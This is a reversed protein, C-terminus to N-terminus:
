WFGGVANKRSNKRANKRASNKRSGKRGKRASNRRSAARAVEGAVNAVANAHAPGLNAKLNVNPVVNMNVVSNIGNAGGVLANNANYNVYNNFDELPLNKANAKVWNAGKEVDKLANNVAVAGDAAAVSLNSLQAAAENVATRIGGSVVSRPMNRLIVANAGGVVPAVANALRPDQAVDAAANAIAPANKKLGRSADNLQKSVDNLTAAVNHATDVAKKLTKGANNITGPSPTVNVNVKGKDGFLYNM